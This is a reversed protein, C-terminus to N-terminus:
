SLFFCFLSNSLIKNCVKLVDGRQVLDIPITKEQLIELNPGVKALLAETPKLSLLKSLAESTKGQLFLALDAFFFFFNNLQLKNLLIFLQLIATLFPLLM